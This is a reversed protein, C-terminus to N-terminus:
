NVHMAPDNEATIAWGDLVLRGLVTGADVAGLSKFLQDRLWAATEPQPQWRIQDGGPRLQGNLTITQTAIPPPSAPRPLCGALLPYRARGALAPRGRGPDGAQRGRERVRRARGAPGRDRVGPRVGPRH